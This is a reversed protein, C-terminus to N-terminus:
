SYRPAEQSKRASSESSPNAWLGKRFMKAPLPLFAEIWSLRNMWFLGINSPMNVLPKSRGANPTVRETRSHFIQGYSYAIPRAM